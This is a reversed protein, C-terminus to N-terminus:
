KERINEYLTQPGEEDGYTNGTVHEWAEVVPEKDYKATSIEYPESDHFAPLIDVHCLLNYISVFKRNGTEERFPSKDADSAELIEEASVWPDELSEMGDDLIRLFSNGYDEFREYSLTREEKMRDLEDLDPM